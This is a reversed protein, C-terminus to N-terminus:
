CFRLARRRSLESLSSKKTRSKVPKAFGAAARQAKTAVSAYRALLPLPRSRQLRPNQAPGVERSGFAGFHGLVGWKEFVTEVRIVRYTVATVLRRASARPLPPCPARARSCPDRRM